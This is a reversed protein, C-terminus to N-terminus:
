KEPIDRKNAKIYNKFFWQVFPLDRHKKDANDLANYYQGRMDANIDFMPYNSEHLIYNMLLRTMRGNGDGFPHICVFRYHMVSAIFVPHYKEKMANYWKFLEDLLMEIEIKSMPPEYKSGAISVPYNRIIGAINPETMQFLEEHWECILKMSLEKTSNIMKEYISMHSKTEIVDRVSKDKPTIDDEIVAQVERLTLTSGEIKSSHHTFRIGFNRLNKAKIPLPMSNWAKRHNEVMGEILPIWREQVIEHSFDEWLDSLEEFPPISIGIYKEKKKVKKGERYSYSLYNYEKGNIEHKIITAM